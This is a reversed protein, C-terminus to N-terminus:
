VNKASIQTKPPVLKGVLWIRECPSIQSLGWLITVCFGWLITVCFGAEMAFVWLFPAWRTSAERLPASSQIVFMLEPAALFISVCFDWYISAWSGKRLVLNDTVACTDVCCTDCHEGWAGKLSKKLQGSFGFLHSIAVILNQSCSYMSCQSGWTMVIMTVQYYLTPSSLM